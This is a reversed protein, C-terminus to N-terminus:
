MSLLAYVCTAPSLGFSIKEKSLSSIARIALTVTARWAGIHKLLYRGLREPMICSM